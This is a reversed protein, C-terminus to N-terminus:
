MHLDCCPLLLKPLTKCSFLQFNGISSLVIVTFFVIFIVFGASVLKDMGRHREAVGILGM